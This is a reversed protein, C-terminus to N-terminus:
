GRRPSAPSGCRRGRRRVIPRIFPRNSTSPLGSIRGVSESHGHVLRIIAGHVAFTLLRYKRSGKEQALDRERVCRGGSPRGSLARYAARGDRWMTM